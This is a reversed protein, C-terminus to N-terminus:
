FYTNYTYMQREVEEEEGLRARAGRGGGWGRLGGRPPHTYTHTPPHQTLYIATLKAKM